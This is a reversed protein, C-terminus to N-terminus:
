QKAITDEIYKIACTFRDGHFKLNNTITNSGITSNSITYLETCTQLACLQQFTCCADFTPPQSCISSDVGLIVELLSNLGMASM